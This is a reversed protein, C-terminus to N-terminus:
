VRGERISNGCITDFEPFFFDVISLPKKHNTTRKLIGMGRREPIRNRLSRHRM